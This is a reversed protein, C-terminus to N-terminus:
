IYKEEDFNLKLLLDKIQEAIVGILYVEKINSKIEQALPKLDVKKDYGGCILIANKYTNIAVNASDVNTAKSDNIFELGAWTFFKETRHELPKAEKLFNAIDENELNILKAAAVMFLCNQLNHEGKLALDEVKIINEDKFFISGDKVCVDAAKKTSLTIKNGKIKEERKVINEDDINEIFFTGEDGKNCVNFKTYYYEDFSHYREIHDPSLNIIMSVIAQFEKINELQFSSAELVIYDLDNDNLVTEAFSRGINGCAEARYGSHSIMEALKATTTSKGNTGTVAIIKTKMEEAKMYRFALEIEDIIEVKNAIAKKVLDNYPVGPSKIFLQIEDLFKMASSSSMAKKDDVLIVEYNLHRLLLNAGKGSLGDGFIMAKKMM